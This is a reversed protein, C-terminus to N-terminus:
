RQLPGPGRLLEPPAARPFRRRLHDGYRHGLSGIHVPRRLRRRDVLHPRQFAITAVYTLKRAFGVILTLAILTEVVAVLHAVFMARSHQFNVWFDFWWKLWAPQGQAEGMIVSMYTARFGPLWKRVADILWIIGFSARPADKPLTLLGQRHPTTSSDSM